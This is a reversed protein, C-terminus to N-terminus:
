KEVQTMIIKCYTDTELTYKHNYEDFVEDPAEANIWDEAENDGMNDPVEYVPFWTDTRTVKIQVKRM